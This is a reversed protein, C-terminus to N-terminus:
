KEKSFGINRRLEITSYTATLEGRRIAPEFRLTYFRKVTEGHRLLGHGTKHIDKNIRGTVGIHALCLTKFVPNSLVIIGLEASRKMGFPPRPWPSEQVAFAKRITRLGHATFFLQFGAFSAIPDLSELFFV